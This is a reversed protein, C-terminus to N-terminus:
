NFQFTALPFDYFEDLIFELPGGSGRGVDVRAFEHGALDNVADAHWDEEDFYVAALVAGHGLVRALADALGPQAHIAGCHRQRAAHELRGTADAIVEHAAFNRTLYVPFIWAVRGVRAFEGVKPFVVLRANVFVRTVQRVRLLVFRRFDEVRLKAHSTYLFSAPSVADLEHVVVADVGRPQHALASLVVALFDAVHGELPEVPLPAPPRDTSCAASPVRTAAWAM